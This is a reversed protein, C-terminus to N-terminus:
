APMPRQCRRRNVAAASPTKAAAAALPAAGHSCRFATKLACFSNPIIRLRRISKLKQVLTEVTFYRMERRNGLMM